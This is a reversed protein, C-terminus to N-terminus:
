PQQTSAGSAAGQGGHAAVRLAELEKVGANVSQLAADLSALDVASRAIQIRGEVEALKAQARAANEQALKYAARESKSAFMGPKRGSALRTVEGAAGRAVAELAPLQEKQANLFTPQAAALAAVFAGHDALAQRAGEVASTADPAKGIAAVSADLAAKAQRAAQPSGVPGPAGRVRATRWAPLNQVSRAKGAADRALAAGEAKAIQFAAKDVAPADLPQASMLKAVKDVGATLAGIERPPRGAARAESILINLAPVVSTSVSAVANAGAAPVLGGPAAAAAEPTAPPAEPKGRLALAAVGGLALAAAAGALLMVPPKSRAKATEPPPAEAVPAEVAAPPAPAVPEVPKPPPPPEDRLVAIRTVEELAPAADADFMRLWQSISQPRNAPKIAMAADVARVFAPSFGPLVYASLPEDHEGHLRELVEPPKRGAACEYLTVGLAYIDTWPGQPYTKVYQEIAAYPPTYFTVKTSTAQNSEFRASGFDILVPRGEDNVLINAPKIDRHLVGARHARDLGQAIPKIIELLTAETLQRGAKLMESLSVGSEFDMVMYATGNIQFLSRVSVINPHREPRSLNWLIKAEEVFKALGLNYVEESSSDNPAVTTEDVRDSIAGPFYEKIAVLEDFYLGRGRYVIGFGGVGLVKELRWERLLAGAPLAKHHYPANL